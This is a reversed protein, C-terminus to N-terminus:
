DSPDAETESQRALLHARAAVSFRRYLWARGPDLTRSPVAVATVTPAASGDGPEVAAAEDM